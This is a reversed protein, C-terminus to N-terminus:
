QTHIARSQYVTHFTSSFSIYLSILAPAHTYLPLHIIDTRHHDDLGLEFPVRYLLLSVDYRGRRGAEPSVATIYADVADHIIIMRISDIRYRVYGYNEALNVTKGEGAAFGEISIVDGKRRIGWGM